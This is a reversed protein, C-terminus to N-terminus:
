LKSHFNVRELYKVVKFFYCGNKMGLKILFAHIRLAKRIEPDLQDFETKLKDWFEKRYIPDIERCHFFLQNFKYDYFKLKIKEYIPFDQITTQLLHVIEFIDFQREGKDASTSGPRSHRYFYLPQRVLSINGARILCPFVFPIDEYYLDTAFKFQHKRIFENRYLKNFPGSNLHFGIDSIDEWRFAIHNFKKHMPLKFWKTQPILGKAEDYHQFECITVDADFRQASTYLHLFMDPDIWDDGDVFGVYEGTARHIAINRALGQGGNEKDLIVIRHDKAAYEKLIALSHDTSGDNVCIIELDTLTQHIVSELCQRLFPEVNFVPIIVSVKVQHVAQFIEICVYM